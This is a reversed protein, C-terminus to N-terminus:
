QHGKLELKSLEAGELREASLVQARPVVRVVCHLWCKIGFVTRASLGGKQVLWCPVNDRCRCYVPNPNALRLEEGRPDLLGVGRGEIGSDRRTRIFCGQVGGILWWVFYWPKVVVTPMRLRRWPFSMSRVAAPPALRPSQWPLCGWLARRSVLPRALLGGRLAELM